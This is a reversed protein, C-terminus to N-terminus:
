NDSKTISIKKKPKEYDEVGILLGWAEMGEVRDCVLKIIGALPIFLFMGPIGWVYEGIIVAIITIFPNMKVRHGIIRPFLANADLVHIIFLGVGVEIATNGTSNAFTVLMCITMATYIGLYPIVNLVATILGLLLAYKIGMVLFMACTIVSMIVMEIVLGVVYSNMMTKTEIIVESVKSRHQVSFLHLVFRMLLRRHFLIFFTFIIIFIILLLVGSVSVFLNSVSQGASELLGNASRNFYEAQQVSNIHLKYSLWHQFNYLMEQFRLKLQPFDDAFSILEIAFLYIFGILVAVFLLVCTIAATARGLKMKKEFFKNLPYLLIAILLGFVLPIFINSAAKLIIFVLVISLLLLALRAYFPLKVSSM